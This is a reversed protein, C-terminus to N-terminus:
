SLEPVVEEKSQVLWYFREKLRSLSKNEGLHRKVAGGHIDQLIEEQNQRLVVLHLHSGSGREDEHEKYLVGNRVILQDLLQVLYSM